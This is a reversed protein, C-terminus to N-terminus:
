AVVKTKLANVYSRTEARLHQNDKRQLLIFIFGRRLEFSLIGAIIIKTIISLPSLLFNLIKMDKEFVNVTNVLLLVVEVLISNPSVYDSEEFCEPNNLTKYDM